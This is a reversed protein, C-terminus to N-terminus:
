AEGEGEEDPFLRDDDPPPGPGAQDPGEEPEFGERRVLAELSPLPFVLLCSRCQARAGGRLAEAEGRCRPCTISAVETENGGNYPQLNPPFSDESGEGQRSRRYLYPSGRKGEGLREVLGEELLMALAEQLTTRPLARGLAAEVRSTIADPRAKSPEFPIGDEEPGPLASLIAQAAEQRLVGRRTGLAVYGEGERLEIVLESPTEEFRSLCVLARRNRGAIVADLGSEGRMEVAIDVAGVLASSGRHATGEEGPSKRLHHVLLVALGTEQALAVLPRIRREAEAADNEDQLAAFAPLTDVVVLAVGQRAAETVAGLAAEWTPLDKRFALLLRETALGLAEIRRRWLSPAEESLVLARAEPPFAVPLGLFDEEGTLLARLLHACLTSKGLKPRASLLTVLGRGLLGEALWPTAGEARGDQLLQVATRWPPKTEASGEVIYPPFSNEGEAQAALALVTEKVAAMTKVPQRKFSDRLDSEGMSPSILGLGPLDLAQVLLGAQRAAAAWAEAWKQGAPDCDPVLLLARAGKAAMERLLAPDPRASAGKTAAHASAVNQLQCAEVIYSAVTADSEGECLVLVMPAREPLAPWLPPRPGDEPEWWGKHQPSRLKATELGPWRFAVAGDRAEIPLKRLWEVPVHCRGAWWALPDGIRERQHGDRHRRGDPFLDRWALGLRDLVARTECGARCIVLLRGDEAEKVSLSPRHDDHAPCHAQWSGNRGVPRCGLEELLALVRSLPRDASM